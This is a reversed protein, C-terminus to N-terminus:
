KSMVEEMMRRLQLACDYFAPDKRMSPSKDLSIGMRAHIYGRGMVQVEDGLFIAEEMSHTVFLTTRCAQEHLGLLFDQLAEKSFADLAATPEDMLLVDPETVLTRAIAIRQRQGVSMQAPYKNILEQLKLQELMDTARELQERETLHTLGLRVNQVATMWPFLADKQQVLGVSTHTPFVIQGVTPKLLGAIAHLLTSKGCGSPGILSCIRGTEVTLNIGEVAPERGYAVTVNEMKLM